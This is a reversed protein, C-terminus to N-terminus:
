EAKPLVGPPIAPPAFPAPRNRTAMGWVQGALPVMFLAALGALAWAGHILGAVLAALLGGLMLVGALSSLLWVLKARGAM